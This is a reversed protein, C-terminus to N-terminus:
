FMRSFKKFVAECVKTPPANVIVRKDVVKMLLDEVTKNSTICKDPHFKLMFSRKNYDSRLVNRIVDNKDDLFRQFEGITDIKMTPVPPPPPPPPPSAPKKPPPRAPRPRPTENPFQTGMTFFPPPPPPPPVPKKPRPRAPRPRPIEGPFQTGMTFPPPSSSRPPVFEADSENYFRPDVYDDDETAGGRMKPKYGKKVDKHKLADRYSIGKKTAFAKVHQIWPNSTM